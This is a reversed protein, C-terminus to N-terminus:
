LDALLEPQNPGQGPARVARVQGRRAQVPPGQDPVDGAAPPTEGQGRVVPGDPRHRPARVPATQGHARLPPRNTHDFSELASRLDTNELGVFGTLEARGPFNPDAGQGPTGLSIAQSGSPGVPEHLDPVRKTADFEDSRWSVRARDQSHGPAR